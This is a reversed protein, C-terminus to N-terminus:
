VSVSLSARSQHACKLNAGVHHWCEPRVTGEGPFWPDYQVMAELWEEIKSETGWAGSPKTRCKLLQIYHQSEQSPNKGM